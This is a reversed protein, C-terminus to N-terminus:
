NKPNANAMHIGAVCVPSISNTRGHNSRNSVIVSPSYGGQVFLEGLRLRCEEVEYSMADLGEFSDLDILFDQVHEGLNLLEMAIVLAAVAVSSARKPVFFYDVVSLETLFRALDLTDYLSRTDLTANVLLM